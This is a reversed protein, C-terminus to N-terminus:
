FECISAKAVRREGGFAKGYRLRFPFESCGWFFDWELIFPFVFSNKTEVSFPFLFYIFM